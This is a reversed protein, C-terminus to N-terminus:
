GAREACRALEALEAIGGDRDLQNLLGFMRDEARVLRVTAMDCVPGNQARKMHARELRLEVLGGHIEALLRSRGM